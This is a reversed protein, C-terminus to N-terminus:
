LLILCASALGIFQIYLLVLRTCKFSLASYSITRSTLSSFKKYFDKPYDQTYM